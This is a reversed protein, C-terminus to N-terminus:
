KVEKYPVGYGFTNSPINKVVVSGAGIFSNNGVNIDQIFTSNTGCHCYDGIVVGGSMVTGPAIHCFEGIITDHDISVSTNIISHKKINVNTNLVCNKAIFVGDEINTYKSCISSPDIIAPFKFGIMEYYNVLKKKLTIDTITGLGMAAYKVGKNFLSQATSDSGLVDYDLCSVSDEAICGIIKFNGAREITDIVSKAHGGAGIIVIENM